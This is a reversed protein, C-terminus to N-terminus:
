KTRNGWNGSFYVWKIILRSKPDVEYATEYAKLAYQLLVKKEFTSAVSYVNTPAENIKLLAEEYLSEAKTTNKQLQYNYGLEILLTAQKYKLLRENLEKEAKDYQELQQYCEITRLFYIGNGPNTKLLEQYSVLAKEFSGSDFYNQALQENQGFHVWGTLLFVFLICRQLM